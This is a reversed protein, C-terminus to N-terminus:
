REGRASVGGGAPAAARGIDGRVGRAGGCRAPRAPGHTRLMRGRHRPRPRAADASLLEVAAAACRANGRACRPMERPVLRAAYVSREGRAHHVRCEGARRRRGRPEGARPAAGDFRSYEPGDGRPRCRPRRRGRRGRDVGSVGLPRAAPTAGPAHIAAVRGGRHTRGARTGRLTGTLVAVRESAGPGLAAVLGRAIRRADAVREVFWWSRAPATRLPLTGSAGSASQRTAAEVFRPSKRANLRRRVAACRFDAGTLGLVTAGSAGTASLTMVRFEPRAQLGAIDRLLAGFAPALHAEDLLVVADHGLLGAHTARLSRGDGYGSFLMRSGVMDVTGVLVAPRAPDLRWAGDDALGGRLVGLGVSREARHAACADFARRLSPLTGIRAIWTRVVEATQDVIARRDVVYVIRRPLAPYELRALLALLVAATKGLGTPIDVADPVAGRALAAYLRRQWPYPTTAWSPASTRCTAFTTPKAVHRRLPPRPPPPAIATQTCPTLAGRASRAIRLAARVPRNGARPARARAAGGPGGRDRVLVPVFVLQATGPATVPRRLRVTPDRHRPLWDALGPHADVLAGAVAALLHRTELELCEPRDLRTALLGAHPAGPTGATPATVVTVHPTDAPVAGALDAAAGVTCMSLAALMPAEAGPVGCTSVLAFPRAHEHEAVGHRSCRMASRVRGGFLAAREATCGRDRFFAEPDPMAAVAGPVLVVWYADDDVPQEHAFRWAHATKFIAEAVLALPATATPSGARAVIVRDTDIDVHEFHVPDPTLSTCTAQTMKM